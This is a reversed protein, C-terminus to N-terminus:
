VTTSTISLWVYLISCEPCTDIWFLARKFGYHAPGSATPSVGTTPAGSASLLVHAAAVRVLTHLPRAAPLLSPLLHSVVEMLPLADATELALDSAMVEPVWVPDPLAFGEGGPPAGDLSVLSCCLSSIGTVSLGTVGGTSSSLGGTLVGGEKSRPCRVLCGGAYKFSKM